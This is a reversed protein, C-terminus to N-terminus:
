EEERIDLDRAGHIFALIRIERAAVEYILRYNRVFVERVRVDGLEPVFRGRKSLTSLSDAASIVKELFALAYSPSDLAIYEVAEDLEANAGESWVIKRRAKEAM